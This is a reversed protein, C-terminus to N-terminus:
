SPRSGQPSLYDPSAGQLFPVLPLCTSSSPASDCLVSTPLIPHVPPFLCTHESARPLHASPHLSLDPRPVSMQPDRLRICLGVLYVSKGEREHVFGSFLLM